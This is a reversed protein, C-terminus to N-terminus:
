FIEKNAQLVERMTATKIGSDRLLQMHREFTEPSVSYTEGSYDIQHYIPVFWANHQKAYELAEKFHAEKTYQGVTYGIINYRDFSGAQNMDVNSIGNGIDGRTNRASFYYQRIYKDVLPNTAGLPAAFNAESDILQFKALVDKSRTLEKGLSGEDLTTLNPHTYSHSSIEHGADKLSKTQNVSLYAKANFQSPLIYQTSAINYKSMIPAAESYVSEWGDDFTVTVLPEKFLAPRSAPRITALTTVQRVDPTLLQAGFWGLSLVPAITM